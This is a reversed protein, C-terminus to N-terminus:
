FDRVTLYNVIVFFIVYDIPLLIACTSIKGVEEAVVTLEMITLIDPLKIGNKKGVRKTYNNVSHILVDTACTQVEAM